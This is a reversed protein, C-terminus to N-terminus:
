RRAGDIAPDLFRDLVAVQDPALEATDFLETTPVARLLRVVADRDDRLRRIEAAAEACALQCQQTFSGVATTGHLTDLYSCLDDVSMPGDSLWSHRDFSMDAQHPAETPM